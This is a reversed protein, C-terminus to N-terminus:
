DSPSVNPRTLVSTTPSALLAARNRAQMRRLTGLGLAVPAITLGAAMALYAGGVPVGSAWWRLAPALLAVGFVGSAGLTLLGASGLRWRATGACAPCVAHGDVFAHQLPLPAACWGCRHQANWRLARRRGRVVYAAVGGLSLTLVALLALM